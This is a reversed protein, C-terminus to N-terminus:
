DDSDWLLPFFLLEGLFSMSHKLQWLFPCKAQLKWPGLPALSPCCGGLPCGTFTFVLAALAAALTCSLVQDAIAGSGANMRVWGQVTVGM